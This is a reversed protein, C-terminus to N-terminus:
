FWSRTRYSRYAEGYRSELDHEELRRWYLISGIGLLGPIVSFAAGHYISWGLIWLIFGLYMPHRLRSYLGTTVLQNINEVGKLHGLAGLSLGLGVVVMALGVWRVSEPLSLHYPDLPCMSFWSVWMVCMAVFVVAFAGRHNAKIRQARKLLEYINRIALGALFLGFLFFFNNRMM